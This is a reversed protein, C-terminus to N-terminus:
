IIGAVEKEMAEHKALQRLLEQSNLDIQKAALHIAAQSIHTYHATMAASLHGVQAQIVAIPVGAEAARTIYTHRLDHFRATGLGAMKRLEEWEKDWSSMPHTPDYGSGGTLPDNKRTHADLLTPLLFHTPETAGLSCARAILRRLAWIALEGLAVYRCGADTKTTNRHVTIYPNDGTLHVASLVLGKIEKMRLGTSRSLVAVCPAVAQPDSNQAITVLKLEQEATLAEGIESRRVKLPHYRTSVRHWLDADQLIASLALLENNITKPNKGDELRQTQYRTITHLDALRVLKTESGLKAALNRTNTVDSAYTGPAVRLKRQRLWDGVATKLPWASRDNPLCGQEIERQLQAKKKKAQNYDSTGSSREIWEGQDNKVRFHYNNSNPRKYVGNRSRSM